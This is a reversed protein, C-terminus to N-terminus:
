LTINLSRRDENSSHQILLDVPQLKLELFYTSNENDKKGPLGLDSMDHLCIDLLRFDDEHMQIQSMGIILKM